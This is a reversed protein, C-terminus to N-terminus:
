YTCKIIPRSSHIYAHITHVIISHRFFVDCALLCIQPNTMETYFKRIYINEIYM